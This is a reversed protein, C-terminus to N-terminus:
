YDSECNQSLAWSLITEHKQNVRRGEIKIRQVIRDKTEGIFVVFFYDMNRRKFSDEGLGLGTFM